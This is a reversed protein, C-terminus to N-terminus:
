QCDQKHSDLSGALAPNTEPPWCHRHAAARHRGYDEQQKWRGLEQGFAASAARSRRVSRQDLLSSWLTSLCTLVISRSQPTLFLGPNNVQQLPSSTFSGATLLAPGLLLRLYKPVQRPESCSAPPWQQSERQPCFCITVNRHWVGPSPAPIIGACCGRVRPQSMSPTEGEKLPNEEKCDTLDWCTGPLTGRRKEGNEETDM